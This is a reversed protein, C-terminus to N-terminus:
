LLNLIQHGFSYTIPSWLNLFSLQLFLIQIKLICYKVNLYFFLICQLNYGSITTGCVKFCCVYDQWILCFWNGVVCIYSTTICATIYFSYESDPRSLITIYALYSDKPICSNLHLNHFLSVSRNCLLQLLCLLFLILCFLLALYAELYLTSVQYQLPFCVNTNLFPFDFGTFDVEFCLSLIFCLQM